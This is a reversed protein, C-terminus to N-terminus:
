RERYRQRKIRMTNLRPITHLPPSVNINENENQTNGEIYEEWNM